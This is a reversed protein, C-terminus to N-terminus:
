DLKELFRVTQCAAFQCFPGFGQAAGFPRGGPACKRRVAGLLIADSKKCKQLVEKTLAQGHNDISIGGIDGYDLNFQHGYKQEVSKLVNVAEGAVEPGVGDGPLVVINFKM